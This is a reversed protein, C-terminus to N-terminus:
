CKTAKFMVFPPYNKENGAGKNLSSDCYEFIEINKFGAENLITYYTDKHWHTDSIEFIGGDPIDLYVPKIEGDSYKKNPDGNMFSSFKIGTSDPNTDLIYFIGNNKLTRYIEKAIKLLSSKESNVIFVYCCIAADFVGDNFDLAGSRIQHYYSNGRNIHSSAKNVMTQSIDVGTVTKIGKAVLLRSVKGGGCGYDLVSIDLGLSEKINEILPTYGLQKELYDDYQDFLNSVDDKMWDTNM